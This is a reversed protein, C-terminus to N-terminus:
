LTCGQSVSLTSFRHMRTACPQEFNCGLRQVKLVAILKERSAQEMTESDPRTLFSLWSQFIDEPIQLPVSGSTKDEVMQKLLGSRQVASEPLSAHKGNYQVLRVDGAAFFLVTDNPSDLEASIALTEGKSCPVTHVTAGASTANDLKSALAV